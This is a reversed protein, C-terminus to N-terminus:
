ILIETITVESRIIPFVNVVLYGLADTIHDQGASKDPIKTNEKYTLTDLARILQRCKPSILLRRVGKANCLLTNVNTIRDVVPVHKGPYVPWGAQRILAFDNQGVPASTKRAAGSPDPHVVGKRGRYRRNIEDMMEQTNSDPLVIEDIVQCQDGARQTVVATMPNVNFDMGILLPADPILVLDTVNAERCFAYYVRAQLTEFSAEYEQRYLKTDMDCRLAQLEEVSVYGGQETPFHFAAWDRGSQAAVYLDYFANHGAPTGIFLARGKRDSLMPRIVANWVEAPMQAYEDLVIADLGCGRLRDSNSAGHLQIMSGNCLEIELEAERISRRMDPPVLNKLKRWAIRKAQRDTPALYYCIQNGARFAQNILWWLALTTKGWRRGAVLVMFRKDCLFVKAHQRKLRLEM